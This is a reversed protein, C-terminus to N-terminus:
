RAQGEAVSDCGHLARQLLMLAGAAADGAPEVCRARLAPDLRPALRQGVSGAIAVPLQGEPDLAAAMADLAAAAADLLDRAAADGRTEAEFVLPALQAYDFARAVACWAILADRDAGCRAWVARALEGAVARGDLAQQAHEVAHMGLWAGSGEDGSPFGWGGSSRRWGRADWAEGVSGTGSILIMGPRGAHAGMQMAAADTEIVLRAYGPNAAVFDQVWPGHNAGALGACLACERPAALPLAADAFAQAVASDIQQWAQAIGRSLGSPGAFGQGVTVAPAAARALRVRTRSGGGDVGLLFDVM